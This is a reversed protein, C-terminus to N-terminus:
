MSFTNYKLKEGKFEKEDENIYKNLVERVILGSGEDLVSIESEKSVGLSNLSTGLRLGENTDTLIWRDHIPTLGHTSTGIVIVKIDPPEQDSINNKWYADYLASLDGKIGKSDHAQRSTIVTFSLDDNVSKLLQIYDLEELTFYPDCIFIRNVLNKEKIWNILYDEALKKEGPTILVSSESTRDYFDNFKEFSINNQSNLELMFKSLMIMNNFGSRILLDENQQINKYKANELIWSYIPYSNSLSLNSAAELYYLSQKIPLPLIRKGNLAALLRWSTESYQHYPVKLNLVDTSNIMEHKLDHILLEEKMEAKIVKKVPDDDTISVMSEAFESNIKYSLDILNKRKNIYRDSEENQGDLTLDMADKLSKKSKEISVGSLEQAFHEFKSIKELDTPLTRIEKEIDNILRDLKDNQKAPLNKAIIVNTFIKDSKNPINKAESIISDWENGKAKIDGIKFLYSKSVVSYGSHIIYDKKPFGEEVIRELRGKIDSIQQNTLKSKTDKNRLSETIDIIKLFLSNDVNLKNILECIDLLEKYSLFYGKSETRDNPEFPSNKTFIYKCANEVAIEKFDYNIDEILEFFTSSRTRYVSPAIISIVHDKYRKDEEAIKKVNSLVHEFVIDEAQKIKDNNFYELAINSWLIAKEGQSPIVDILGSFMQLDKKIDKNMKILGSYSRIMLQLLHIYSSSFNTDYFKLESRYNEVMEIFERAFVISKKSVLTAIKFGIDVKRWGIDISNWYFILDDKLKKEFNEDTEFYIEYLKCVAECKVEIEEINLYLEIVDKIESHKYNKLEESANTILRLYGDSFLDNDYKIKSFAYVIEKKLDLARNKLSLSKIFEYYLRERSSIINVNEILDMIYSPETDSLIFVIKKLEEYHNSCDKLIIQISKELDEKFLSHLSDKKELEKGKDYEIITSYILSLSETKTSLNELSDIYLYLEEIKEKVKSEKIQFLGKIINLKMKVYEIRPGSKEINEDQSDFLWILDEFEKSDEIYKLQTSLKQYTGANPSYNSTLNILEFAKKVVLSANNRKKSNMCWNSLMTIRDSVSEFIDIESLVEEATQNKMFVSFENFFSKIDQDKVTDKIKEFINENQTSEDRFATISVKAIALDLANENKRVGVSKEILDIALDINTYILCTAIEIAKEKLNTIDLENYIRKIEDQIEEEVIFGMESKHKAILALIHLRDELLNSRSALLKVKEFQELSVLAEIESKSLRSNYNELILSNQLSFRLQKPHDGIKEAAVIGLNTLKSILAMSQTKQVLSFQEESDLINLLEINNNSEAYYEPLLKIKEETDNSELISDIIINLIEKKNNILKESLFKFFYRSYIEIINEKVVFLNNYENIKNQITSFECKLLTSISNADHKRRDFIIVSLIQKILDDSEIKKWDLSFFDPVKTLDNTLDEISKNQDLSRLFQNIIGPKGKSIKRIDEIDDSHINYGNFITKLEEFTFGPLRVERFELKKDKLLNAIDLKSNDSILFNFNKNNLQYLSTLIEESVSSDNEFGYELGDIVFYVKKAKNKKKIERTLDFLLSSLNKQYLEESTLERSSIFYNIQNCIDKNLTDLDYNLISSFNLFLSISNDPNKECFDKMVSTKGTEEEGCVLVINTEEFQDIILDYINGRDLFVKERYDKSYTGSVNNLDLLESNM